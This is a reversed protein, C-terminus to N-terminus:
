VSLNCVRCQVLCNESVRPDNVFSDLLALDIEKTERGLEALITAAILRYDADNHSLLTLLAKAVRGFQDDSFGLQRFFVM